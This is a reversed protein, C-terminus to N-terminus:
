VRCVLVDLEGIITSWGRFITENKYSPAAARFSITSSGPFEALYIDLCQACTTAFLVSAAQLLINCHSQIASLVHTGLISSCFPQNRKTRKNGSTWHRGCIRSSAGNRRYILIFFSVVHMAWTGGSFSASGFPRRASGQCHQGTKLVNHVGCSLVCPEFCKYFFFTDM